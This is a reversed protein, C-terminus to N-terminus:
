LLYETQRPSSSSYVSTVVGGRSLLAFDSLAWELRTNAFIGVRDGKTVGLEDFGAALRRYIRRFDGYTVSAFEGEPAEDIVEPTLTRNYVGGKYMSATEEPRRKVAAEVAEPVTNWGIVEDDYEKEAQRWDSVM